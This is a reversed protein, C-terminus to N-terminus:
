LIIEGTVIDMQVIDGPKVSDPIRLKIGMELVGLRGRAGKHVEVIRMPMSRPTEVEAKELVTDIEDLAAQTLLQEGAGVNEKVQEPRKAGPIACTMGSRSVVWSLALQAITMGREEAIPRLRDILALCQRLPEGQFQPYSSRHDGEGFETESTIGGAFMGMLLPAYAIVGIGHKRCFPLIDQEIDRHLFNYPMQNSVIGDISLWEGMEEMWFNSLGVYRIKGAQVLQELVRVTEEYPTDLDPFHIQYLDIWDTGLRRLSEEVSQTIAEQSCDFTIRGQKDWPTGGKTALIVDERRGKIAKGVVEEAHGLGYNDSTDIFNIGLEIARQITAMSDKDYVRGYARGSMALTGLAIVSVELDSEGLRRYQM